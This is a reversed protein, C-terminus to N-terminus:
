SIGVLAKVYQSREYAEPHASREQCLMGNFDAISGYGKKDMWSTLTDLMEKLREMGNDMLASCVQATRAGALLMKIVAEGDHIGTSASLDGQIEGSMLAIWQLAMGMEEPVSKVPGASLKLKEIDIDPRYFRNFLTIGQAGAKSLSSITGALGSFHPGIKVSVPISVEKKVAKLISFYRKEIEEGSTSADSPIIFINLELADAGVTEFREAYETWTGASVCNVSAIVPISLSKKADEVLTLYENLYYDRSSSRLFDYADAHADFDLGGIMRSADMSIQEEFLSKLVVAGAGAQECKRLNKLNATLPSSSVIVPNKLDIGMYRTSLDAMSEEKTRSFAM